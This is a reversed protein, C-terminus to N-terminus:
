NEAVARNKKILQKNQYMLVDARKMTDELNCDCEPNFVAYGVAVSVPVVFGKRDLEQVERLISILKNDIENQGTKPMIVCFEDGGIRYCRGDIGIIRILVEAVMKIYKDGNEHGYVDNCKKLDNLDFMFITNPNVITKGTEEDVKVQREMDNQFATRNYAGTLEDTYAMKRYIEAERAREVIKRSQKIMEVSMVMIYILFGLMGSIVKVHFVQFSVLEVLTTAFILFFCALNLKMRRTLKGARIEKIGMVFGILVFILISFQTMWLSQKLDCLATAQLITRLVIIGMNFNIYVKWIPSNDDSFVTRIFLVFSMPMVMLAYHDIVMNGVPWIGFLDSIPSEMISWVALLVSFIAFHVLAEDERNQKEIFCSYALLIVGIILILLACLFHSANAAFVTKYIGFKDGYYFENMIDVDDYAPIMHVSMVKGADEVTLDIFNWCYGTSKNVKSNGAYLSYVPEGDIVVEAATHATYFAISKGAANEKPLTITFYVGDEREEPTLEWQEVRRGDRTNLYTNNFVTGLVIALVMAIMFVFGYIRLSYKNM